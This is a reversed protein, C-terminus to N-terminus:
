KDNTLRVRDPKQPRPQSPPFYVQRALRKLFQRHILQRLGERIVHPVDNDSPVHQRPVGDTLLEYPGSIADPSVDGLTTSRVAELGVPAEHLVCPSREVFGLVPEPPSKSALEERGFLHGGEFRK